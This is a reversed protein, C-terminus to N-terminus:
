GPECAWAHSCTCSTGTKLALAEFCIFNFLWISIFLQWYFMVVSLKWSVFIELISLVAYLHKDWDMAQSLVLPSCLTEAGTQIWLWTKWSVELSSWWEPLSRIWVFLFTYSNEISAFRFQNNEQQIKMRQIISIAWNSCQPWVLCMLIIVANNLCILANSRYQPWFIKEEYSVQSTTHSFWYSLDM